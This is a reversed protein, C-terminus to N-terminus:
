PNSPPPLGGGQGSGGIGRTGPNANRMSPSGGGFNVTGTSTGGMSSTNMGGGNGFSVTPGSSSRSSSGGSGGGNNNTNGANNSSNKKQKPAVYKGETKWKKNLEEEMKEIAAKQTLSMKNWVRANRAKVLKLYDMDGKNKLQGVKLEEDELKKSQEEHAKRAAEMQEKIITKEADTATSGQAISKTYAIQASKLAEGSLKTTAGQADRVAEAATIANKNEETKANKDFGFLKEEKAKREEFVKKKSEVGANWSEIGKGIGLDKGYSTNRFDYTKEKLGESTRLRQRAIAAAVGTGQAQTQLLKRKEETNGGIRNAFKKGILERGVRASGGAAMRGGFQMSRKPLARIKTTAYNGVNSMMDSGGGAIKSPLILVMLLFGCTLFFYYFYTVTDTQPTLSSTITGIFLLAIYLTLLFAPLYVVQHKLQGWWQKGMGRFWPIFASILGFPSTIMLLTFLFFRYLLLVAAVALIVILVVMTLAALIGSRLDNFAVNLENQQLAPDLQFLSNNWLKNIADKTGIMRAINASISQSGDGGSFTIQSAISKAVFNSTNFALTTFFLSFNILIAAVLVGALTKTDAFGNGNLITRIALYLLSFVIAINALDRLIKWANSIPEKITNYLTDTTVTYELIKDFFQGTLGLILNALGLIAVGASSIINTFVKGLAALPNLESAVKKAEAITNGVPNSWFSNPVDGALYKNPNTKLANIQQDRSMSNWQTLSSGDLYLIKSKNITDVAQEPSQDKLVNYPEVAFVTPTVFTWCLIFSFFLVIFTTFFSKKM